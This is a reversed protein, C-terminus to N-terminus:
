NTGRSEKRGLKRDLGVEKRVRVYMEKVTIEKRVIIDKFRM